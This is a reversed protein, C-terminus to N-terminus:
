EHDVKDIWGCEACVSEREQNGREKDQREREQGDVWARHKVPLLLWPRHAEREALRAAAVVARSRDRQAWRRHRLLWLRLLLLLLPLLLPPLLLLLLLAVRPLCLPTTLRM